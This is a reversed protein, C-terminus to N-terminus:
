IEGQAYNLVKIKTPELIPYSADINVIPKTLDFNDPLIVNNRLLKEYIEQTTEYYEYKINNEYAVIKVFDEVKQGSVLLISYLYNQSTLEATDEKLFTKILNCKYDVWKSGDFYKYYMKGNIEECFVSDNGDDFTVAIGEYYGTIPFRSIESLSDYVPIDGDISTKLDKINFPVLSVFRPFDKLSLWYNKVYRNTQSYATNSISLLFYPNSLKKSIIYPSGDRNQIIKDITFTEGRYIQLENKYTQM